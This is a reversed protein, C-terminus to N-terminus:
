TNQGKMSCVPNKAIYLASQNDCYLTVPQLVVVGLEELLRDMWTVESAASALARYEAESSSGALLLTVLCYYIGHSHGEPTMALVGIVIQSLKYVYLLQHKSFFAKGVHAALMILLM